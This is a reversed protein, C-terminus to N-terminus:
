LLRYPVGHYGSLTPVYIRPLTNVLHYNDKIICSYLMIIDEKSRANTITRLHRLQKLM